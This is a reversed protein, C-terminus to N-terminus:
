DSTSEFIWRLVRNEFIRLKHDEMFTLYLTRVWLFIGLSKTRLRIIGVLRGGSTPSTLVLKQQYLTDRPWSLPNRRGNIRNELGSGSSKWELLEEIIRVFSLPGGELGLVEWLIQYCRSDFGPCRSRYGHVSVVLGCLRDINAGM